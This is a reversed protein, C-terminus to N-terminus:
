VFQAYTSAPNHQFYDGQLSTPYYTSNMLYIKLGTGKRTDLPVKHELFDWALRMVHDYGLHKEPEYWALLRGGSDLVVPEFSLQANPYKPPYAQAGADLGPAVVCLALAVTTVCRRIAHTLEDRNM